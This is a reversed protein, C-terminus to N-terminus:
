LNNIMEMYKKPLKNYQRATTASSWENLYKERLIMSKYGECTLIAMGYVALCGDDIVHLEGGNDLYMDVVKDVADNNYLKM